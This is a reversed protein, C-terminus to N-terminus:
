MTVMLLVVSTTINIGLLTDILFTPLPLIMLAVVAVVVGAIGVEGSYQSITSSKIM